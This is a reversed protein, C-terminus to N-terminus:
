VGYPSETEDAGRRNHQQSETELNGDSWRALIHLHDLTSSTRQLSSGQRRGAYGVKDLCTMRTSPKGVSVLMMPSDAYQSEETGPGAMSGSVRPEDRPPVESSM